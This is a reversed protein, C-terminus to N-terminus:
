STKDINQGKDEIKEIVGRRTYVECVVIEKMTAPDRLTKYVKTQFSDRLYNVVHQIGTVIM